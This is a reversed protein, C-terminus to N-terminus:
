LENQESIELAFTNVFAGYSLGALIAFILLFAMNPKHRSSTRQAATHFLSSNLYGGTLGVGFTFSLNVWMNNRLMPINDPGIAYCALVVFGFRLLSLLNNWFPNELICYSFIMKGVLDAINFILYILQDSLLSEWGTGMAFSIAPVINMTITFVLFMNFFYPYIEKFTSWLSPDPLDSVSVASQAIEVLPQNIGGAQEQLKERERKAAAKAEAKAALRAKRALKPVTFLHKDTSSLYYYRMTISIIILLAVVQFIQYALAQTFVEHAPIFVINVMAILTTVVGSFARGGNMFAIEPAGFRFMYETICCQIGSSASGVMFASIMAIGLKLDSGIPMTEGVVLIITSGLVTVAPYIYLQKSIPFMGSIPRFVLYGIIGGFNKAALANVLGKPGFKVNWYNVMSVLCNFVYLTAFGYTAFFLLRLFKSPTRPTGDDIPKPKPKPKETAAKKAKQPPAQKNKTPNVAEWNKSGKKAPKKEVSQERTPVSAIQQDIDQNEAQM